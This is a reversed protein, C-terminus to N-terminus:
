KITRFLLLHQFNQAAKTLSSNKSSVHRSLPNIRAGESQDRCSVFWRFCVILIPVYIMFMFVYRTIIVALLGAIVFTDIIRFKPTIESLSSVWLGIHLIPFMAVNFYIMFLLM